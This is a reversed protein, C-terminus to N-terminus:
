TGKGLLRPLWDAFHWFSNFVKFDIEEAGITTKGDPTLSQSTNHRGASLGTMITGAGSAVLFVPAIFGSVGSGVLFM